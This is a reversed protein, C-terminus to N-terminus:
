PRRPGTALALVAELGASSGRWHRRLAEPGARRVVSRLTLVVIIADDAWGLVPIVDPVLDIPMALYALLLWLRARVGRPATRDRALRALLGALDPLLRLAERLQLEGPRLRWLAAVAVAWTLLLGVAVGVITSWPM